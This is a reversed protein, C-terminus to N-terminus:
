DQKSIESALTEFVSRLTADRFELSVPKKGGALSMEDRAQAAQHESVKTLLTRAGVDAPDEELVNRAAAEAESWRQQDFSAQAQAMVKRHRDQRELEGRLWVARPDNPAIAEIQKLAARAEDTRGGRRAVDAKELWARVNAERQSLYTARLAVDGSQSSHARALLALAADPHGADVLQQAQQQPTACAVLLGLGALSLRARLPVHLAIPNM